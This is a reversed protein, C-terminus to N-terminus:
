QLPLVAIKRSQAPSGPIAMKTRARELPMSFQWPVSAVFVVLKCQAWGGSLPHALVALCLFRLILAAPEEGLFVSQFYLHIVLKHIGCSQLVRTGTSFLLNLELHKKM